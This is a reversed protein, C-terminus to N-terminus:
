SIKKQLTRIKMIIKDAREKPVYKKVMVLGFNVIENLGEQLHQKLMIDEMGAIQTLFNETSLSNKVNKIYKSIDIKGDKKIIVNKYYPRLKDPAKQLFGNFTKIADTKPNNKKLEVILNVILKNYNNIMKSISEDIAVENEESIDILNLRVLEYVMKFTNFEGFGSFRIIKNLTKEGDILDFIKQLNASLQTKPNETKKILVVDKTPIKERIVQLEDMRRYGEMLINQTNISYISLDKYVLEGEIFYFLGETLSFVSYIIEEIQYKIGDNLEEETIYGKNTLINGFRKGLELSSEADEWQQKTIKGLKFLIPGLREEPMNSQAFIIEGNKFYISKIFDSTELLFVGTKQGMNIMSFIDAIGFIKINGMLSIKFDSNKLPLKVAKVREMLFFNNSLTDLYFTDGKNINFKEIIQGPFKVEGREGFKIIIKNKSM